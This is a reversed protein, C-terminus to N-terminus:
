KPPPDEGFLKKYDRGYERPKDNIYALYGAIERVKPM